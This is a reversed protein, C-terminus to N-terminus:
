AAEGAKFKQRRINRLADITAFAANFVTRTDGRTKTWVDKIGALELVKKATGGAVIGTGKPAPILTIRVSGCKGDVKYPVSHGMGCGCEWSGCGTRIALVNLKANEVAKEIAPRVNLGRGTGVGVYGSKNGIAATVMFSRKRGSDTTRQVAKVNLVEEQLDPVLVDIIQPELIPLNKEYIQELTTLDGKQVLKGTRTKPVWATLQEQKIEEKTKRPRREPRGRGRPSQTRREM